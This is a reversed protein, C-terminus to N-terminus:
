QKSIIYAGCADNWKAVQYFFHVALADVGTQPVTVAKVIFRGLLGVAFAWQPSFCLGAWDVAANISPTNTSSYIDIGFVSGQRGNQAPAQGSLIDLGIQPNGWVPATSTIIDAQIDRIATPHLVQVLPGRVKGLRVKYAADKLKSVTLVTNTTGASQTFTNALALTDLDFKDAAAAGADQALYEHNSADNGFLQSELTLEVYATAKQATISVNTEAYTSKTASAAEATVAMTVNGRKGFKLAASGPTSGSAEKFNQAQCLALMVVANRFYPSGNAGVYAAVNTFGSLVTEGAM